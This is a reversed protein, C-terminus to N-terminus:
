DRSVLKGDIAELHQSVMGADQLVELSRGPRADTIFVQGFADHTMLEMLRAIRDDDLKEFIDDLLLLPKFGNKSVLCDFEALKLAILFSKQQGQSGFERLPQEDITFLFEDRHPGVTTRGLAIDGQLRKKLEAEFNGSGLDSRYHISVTEGESHALFEYRGGLLKIYNQLFELRKLFIQNGAPVMRGDYTELLDNDSQGREAFMRLLGNRQRLLSQYTILSELYAPDLQSLLTDFFRRRAEAGDWILEIDNPAILVLPYKGIHDSFRNYALGNETVSKKRENYSCVIEFQKAEKEIAGSVSFHTAGNKINSSDKSHIARRTFAM